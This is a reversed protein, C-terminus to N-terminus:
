SRQFTFVMRFTKRREMAYEDMLRQVDRQIARAIRAKTCPAVQPITVARSIDSTQVVPAAAPSTATQAALPSSVAVVGLVAAIGIKYRRQM